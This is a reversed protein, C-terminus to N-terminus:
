VMWFYKLQVPSVLSSIDVTENRVENRHFVSIFVSLFIFSIYFDNWHPVTILVLSKYAYSSLILLLM